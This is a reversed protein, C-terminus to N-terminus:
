SPFRLPRVVVVNETKFVQTSRNEVYRRIPDDETSTASLNYIAYLSSMNADLIEHPGYLDKWSAFSSQQDPTVADQFVLPSDQTDLGNLDFNQSLVQGILDILETARFRTASYLPQDPYFLRFLDFGQTIDGGNNGSLDIMMKSKSDTAAGRVFDVATQLFDSNKVSREFLPVQLVAVDQFGTESLYYGRILDHPHSLVPKPYRASGSSPLRYAPASHLSGSSSWFSTQVNPNCAAEFLTEGDRYDM